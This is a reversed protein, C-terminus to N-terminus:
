QQTVHLGRPCLQSLLQLWGCSGGEVGPCVFGLTIFLAPFVLAGNVHLADPVVPTSLSVNSLLISKGTKFILELTM